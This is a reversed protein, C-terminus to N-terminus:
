EAESALTKRIFPVTLRRQEVLSARDLRDLWRCLVTMERDVRHLLYRATAADLELGRLRARNTLAHVCGSESLGSLRYVVAGAARSALDPLSFEIATPIDRAAMILGGPATQFADLVTFLRQEWNTNRAVIDVRDLALLDVSELGQLLDPEIQDSSDLPLYMTRRGALSATRCAAQLLHSKGCGSPASLWVTDSRSGSALAQVHAVAAANSETVFSDFLALADLKLDLPLQAL